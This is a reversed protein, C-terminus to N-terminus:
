MHPYFLRNWVNTLMDLCIDLCIYLGIYLGIYVCIYLCMYLCIYLCIYHVSLYMHILIMWNKYIYLVSMRCICTERISMYTGVRIYIFYRCVAYVLKVSTCTLVLAYIFLTGVYQMYVNRQYVHLYWRTYIYLVSMSCICMERIYMYTGVRIYIFYWCVAYVLKESTCTFVLAFIYSSSM